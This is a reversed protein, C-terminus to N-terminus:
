FLQRGNLLVRSKYEGAAFGSLLLNQRFANCQKQYEYIEQSFQESLRSSFKAIKPSRKSGVEIFRWSYLSHSLSDYAMDSGCWEVM